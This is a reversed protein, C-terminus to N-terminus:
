SSQAGLPCNGMVTGNMPSLTGISDGEEHRSCHHHQHHHDYDCYSNYYRTYSNADMNEKLDTYHPPPYGHAVMLLLYDKAVSPCEFSNAIEEHLCPMLM